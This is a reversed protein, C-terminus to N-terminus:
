IVEHQNGLESPSGLSTNFGTLADALATAVVDETDVIVGSGFFSQIVNNGDSEWQEGLFRPELMTAIGEDTATMATVSAQLTSKRSELIALYAVKAAEFEPYWAYDDSVLAESEVEESMPNVFFITTESEIHDIKYTQLTPISGVNYTIKHYKIM